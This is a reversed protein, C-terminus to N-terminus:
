CYNLVSLTWTNKLFDKFIALLLM